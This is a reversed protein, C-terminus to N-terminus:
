EKKEEKDWSRKHKRWEEQTLSSCSECICKIGIHAVCSCEVGSFVRGKYYESPCFGYLRFCSLCPQFTANCGMM